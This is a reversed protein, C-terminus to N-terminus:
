PVAPRLNFNAEPVVSAIVAGDIMAARCSKGAGASSRALRCIRRRHPARRHRDAMRRELEDGDWVAFVTNTNNANIALLMAMEDAGAPFVEGASIRRCEGACDSCCLVRSM